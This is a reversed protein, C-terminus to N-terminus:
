GAEGVDVLSGLTEFHKVRLGLYDSADALTIRERDLADFVLRTYQKGNERLAARPPPLGRRKPDRPLQGLALARSRYEDQYRELKAAVFSDSVRNVSRLRLVIVERSVAFADALERIHVDDWAADGTRGRYLPVTELADLPVLIHGAVQNCFSEVIVNPAAGRAVHRLPDCIGGDHLMLHAFEHMLTFVRGRPRDKGNLVIVPLVQEAISFGRMERLPVTGSQFVLVGCNEIAATWGNLGDYEDQWSRQADITIGIRERARRGVDAPAEELTASLSFINARRDLESLLQLTVSRRRRARRLEFLLAPSTDSPDLDGALRRFDHVIPAADPVEPLFFAALPRKYVRAMNRLQPVTPKTTGAEMSALQSPKLSLKKAAQEVSMGATSRAWVLLGPRIDAFLRGGKKEDSKKREAM